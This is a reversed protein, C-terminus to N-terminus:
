APGPPALFRMHLTVMTARGGAVSDFNVSGATILDSGPLSEWGIVQNEVDNIIQADWEVRLNGPGRAVWHSLGSADHQTVSDLHAMFGPLNELHRWYRYVEALPKEVQVAELVHMGRDGSLADQPDDSPLYRRLFEPWDGTLGRYMLPMALAALWLGHMNRRSLG